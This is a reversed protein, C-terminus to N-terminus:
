QFVKAIIINTFLYLNTPWKNKKDNLKIGTSDVIFPYNIAFGKEREQIHDFILNIWSEKADSMETERLGIEGDSTEDEPSFKVGEDTLRDIIDTPSVYGENLLCVLEVYDAYLHYHHKSEELASIDLLKFQEALKQKFNNM